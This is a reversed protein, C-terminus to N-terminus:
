RIAMRGVGAAAAAYLVVGALVVATHGFHIGLLAALVAGIVSACGNIGWAWPLLSPDVANLRALARPFPMGMLTALPAILAFAAAIKVASPAGILAATLWPSMLAYTTAIVAIGLVPGTISTGSGRRTSLYSGAGAFLLFAALVVVLAHVPHSLIITFRGIFAIEILLFALGICFFGALAPWRRARSRGGRIALLPLLILAASAVVAQVLAAPLALYGLDLLGIGGERSLALVEPAHAWRFFSSFYPRDDTAPRIDFKYDRVFEDRRGGLLHQAAEHFYPRDLVNFRNAEGPGIDPLHILDFARLRAFERVAESQAASLPSRGVVLTSTSWSRIWALHAGAPRVGEAEMAELVTALLRLGDRPPLRSRVTFAAVGTASLRALVARVSEVTLLRQAELAHLGATSAGLAIIQVLDYEEGSAEVFGRPDAVHVGVNPHEFVGGSFERYRGRVLDVVDPQIEVADVSRAGAGLAQLVGAGGGAGLVLVRPREVLRYPLASTLDELYGPPRASADHRVVALPGDADVFLAVQEPVPARAVLSLGPASRFPVKRNEVASVMGLPGSRTEVLEAGTVRLAQPLPKFPSIRLEGTVGFGALLLVAGCLLLLPRRRPSLGRGGVALAGAAAGLGCVFDLAREAPVLYLVGVAAAAGVGAGALDAAYVRSLRHRFVVLARGIGTAAFFFPVALVLEIVLLWGLSGPSWPADLVNFPVREAIVFSVPAALGFGLAALALFPEIGTRIRKGLVLLFTGSAGFGLLAVGIVLFAFHHWQVISFLRTLLIEYGLAAASLVAVAAMVMPGAGPPDGASDGRRRLGKPRVFPDEPSADGAGGSGAHIREDAM